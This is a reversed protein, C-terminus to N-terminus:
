TSLSKRLSQQVRACVRNAHLDELVAVRVGPADVRGEELGADRDGRLLAPSITTRNPAEASGPPRRGPVSCMTAGGDGPVTSSQCAEEPVRRVAQRISPGSGSAPGLTVTRFSLASSMTSLPIRNPTSSERLTSATGRFGRRRLGPVSAGRECDKVGRGAALNARQWQRELRDRVWQHDDGLRCRGGRPRESGLLLLAPPRGRACRRERTSACLCPLHNNDVVGGLGVVQRHQRSTPVELPGWVFTRKSTGDAAVPLMVQAGSATPTSPGISRSSGNSQVTRSLTVRGPVPLKTRVM